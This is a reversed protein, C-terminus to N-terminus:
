DRFLIYFIGVAPVAMVGLFILGCFVMVTNYIYNYYKNRFISLM